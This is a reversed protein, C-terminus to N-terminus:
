GRIKIPECYALAKTRGGLAVEMKSSKWSQRYIQKVSRFSQQQTRNKRKIFVTRSLERISRCAGLRIGTLPSSISQSCAYWLRIRLNLRSTIKIATPPNAIAIGHNNKPQHSKALHRDPPRASLGHSTGNHISSRLQRRIRSSM